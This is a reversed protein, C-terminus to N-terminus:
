NISFASLGPTEPPQNDLMMRLLPIELRYAAITQSLLTDPEDIELLQLKKEPNTQLVTAALYAMQVPDAPMKGQLSVKGVRELIKVYRKLLAGLQIGAPALGEGDAAALPRYSVLGALYPQDHRLEEIRFRNEGIAVINLRNGTLRKSHAIRASCGVPYPDADGGVERGRKILVVGFPCDEHLCDEVLQLYREEFIHLTIPMGPFLVTNLPFLPLQVM